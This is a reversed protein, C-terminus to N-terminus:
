SRKELKKIISVGFVIGYYLMLGLLTIAINQFSFIKKKQYISSTTLFLICPICLVLGFLPLLLFFYKRIFLIFRINGFRKITPSKNKIFKLFSTLPLYIHFILGLFVTSIFGYIISVLIGRLWFFYLINFFTWIIFFLKRNIGFLKKSDKEEVVTLKQKNVENSSKDKKCSHFSYMSDYEKGCKPCKIIPM